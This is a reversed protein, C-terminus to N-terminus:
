KEHLMRRYLAGAVVSIFTVIRFAFSRQFSPKLNSEFGRDIESDSKTYCTYSISISISKRLMILKNNLILIFRFDFSFIVSLILRKIKM